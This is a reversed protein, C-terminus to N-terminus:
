AERFEARFRVTIRLPATVHLRVPTGGKTNTGAAPTLLYSGPRLRIGFRAEANSEVTRTTGARVAGSATLRALTFRAHPLLRWPNCNGGPTTAPCGIDVKTVGTLRATAAQRRAAGAGAATTALLVLAAFSFAAARM